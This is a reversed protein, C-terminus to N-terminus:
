CVSIVLLVVSLLLTPHFPVVKHDPPRQDEHYHKLLHGNVQSTIGTEEDVLEVTGFPYVKTVRFPGEWKTVFKGPMLKLRAKFKLVKDGEHFQKRLIQKDHIMKLKDKYIRANDYSELRMEELEQLKMKQNVLSSELDADCAKIAWYSKHEIEM